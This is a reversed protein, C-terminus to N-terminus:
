AGGSGDNGSAGADQTDPEDGEGNEGEGPRRRDPEEQGRDNRVLERQRWDVDVLDEAAPEDLSGLVVLAEEVDVPQEGLDRQEGREPQVRAVPSAEDALRGGAPDAGSHQEPHESESQDPQALEREPEGGM